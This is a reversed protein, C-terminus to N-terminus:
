FIKLFKVIAHSHFQSHVETARIKQLFAINYAQFISKSARM